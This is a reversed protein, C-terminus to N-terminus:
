NQTTSDAMVIRTARPIATNSVAAFASVMAAVSFTAVTLITSAMIGLLNILIERSVGIKMKEPMNEASAYAISVWGVAALGM